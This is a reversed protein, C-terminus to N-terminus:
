LVPRLDTLLTGDTARIPTMASSPPGHVESRLTKFLEYKAACNRDNLWAVHAQSQEAFLDLIEKNNEYFWDQHKERPHGLVPKASNYVTGRFSSWATEIDDDAQPVPPLSDTLADKLAQQVKPEKLKKVDLKKRASSAQRRHKRTLQFATRCRLLIHDTWCDVGRM